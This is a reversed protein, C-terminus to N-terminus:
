NTALMEVCAKTVKVLQERPLSRLQKLFSSLEIPDIKQVPNDELFVMLEDLTYGAVHAIQSLNETDPFTQMEEWLRVATGSVGLRRGFARQSMEGRAKRVIEALKQRSELNM